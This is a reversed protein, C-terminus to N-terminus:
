KGWNQCSYFDSNKKKRWRAVLRRYRILNIVGVIGIYIIPLFFFVFAAFNHFISGIFFPFPKYFPLIWFVSGSISLLGFYSTFLIIRNRKKWTKTAKWFVFTPFVLFYIIGFIIMALIIIAFFLDVLGGQLVIIKWPILKM